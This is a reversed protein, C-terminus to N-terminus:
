ASRYSIIQKYALYKKLFGSEVIMNKQTTPVPSAWFVGAAAFRRFIDFHLIFGAGVANSEPRERKEM